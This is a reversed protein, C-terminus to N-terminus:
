EATEEVKTRLAGDLASQLMLSASASDVRGRRKDRKVGLGILDREAQRSTLREDVFYVPLRSRKAVKAAFRRAKQTEQSDSGDMSLPLGVVIGQVRHPDLLELIRAVADNEGTVSLHPLPSAITGTPDSLALGVRKEGWDVGLLIPKM